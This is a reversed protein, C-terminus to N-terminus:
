EPTEKLTEIIAQTVIAIIGCGILILLPSFCWWWSWDIVHCLKQVVFGATLLGIGSNPAKQSEKSKM